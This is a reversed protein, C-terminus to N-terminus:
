AGETFCDFLPQHGSNSQYMDVGASRQLPIKSYFETGMFASALVGIDKIRIITIMLAVVKKSHDGLTVACSVSATPAQM